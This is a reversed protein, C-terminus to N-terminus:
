EYVLVMEPTLGIRCLQNGGRIHNGCGAATSWERFEASRGIMLPHKLAEYCQM